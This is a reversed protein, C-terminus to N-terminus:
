EGTQNKEDIRIITRRQDEPLHVGERFAAMRMANLDLHRAADTTAIYYALECAHSTTWKPNAQGRSLRAFWHMLEKVRDHQKEPTGAIEEPKLSGKLLDELDDKSLGYGPTVNDPTM